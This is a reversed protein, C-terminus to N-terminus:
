RYSIHRRVIPLRGVHCIQGIAYRDRISAGREGGYSRQKGTNTRKATTHTHALSRDNSVRMVRKQSNACNTVDVVVAAANAVLRVLRMGPLSSSGGGHQTKHIISIEDRKRTVASRSNATNMDSSTSHLQISTTNQNGATSTMHSICKRSLYERRAHMPQARERPHNITFFCITMHSERVFLPRNSWSQCRKFFPM